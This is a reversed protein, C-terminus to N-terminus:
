YYCHRWIQPTQKFSYSSLPPPFFSFVWNTDRESCKPIELEAHLFWLCVCVCGRGFDLLAPELTNLKPIEFSSKSYTTNCDRHGFCTLSRFWILENIRDGRQQRGSFELSMADCKIIFFSQFKKKKLCLLVKVSHKLELFPLYSDQFM